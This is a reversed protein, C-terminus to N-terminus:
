RGSAMQCRESLIQCRGSMIYCRRSVMFGKWFDNSVKRVGKHCWVVVRQCRESGDSVKTVCDSVKGVGYLVNIVGDSVDRVVDSM